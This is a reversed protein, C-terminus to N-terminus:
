ALASMDECADSSKPVSRRQAVHLEGLRDDERIMDGAKEGIMIAGANTNGSVLLPMISADVVRLGVTGYVRLREDVVSDPGQGMSCTGVPHFITQGYGRVFELLEEDTQVGSGPKYRM